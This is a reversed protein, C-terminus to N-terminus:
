PRQTASSMTTCPLRPKADAVSYAAHCFGVKIQLVRGNRVDERGAEVADEAADVGAADRRSGRRVEGIWAVVEPPQEMVGAKCRAHVCRALLELQELEAVAQRVGGVPGR